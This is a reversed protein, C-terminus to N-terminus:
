LDIDYNEDEEIVTKSLDSKAISIVEFLGYHKNTSQEGVPNGEFKIKPFPENENEIYIDYQGPFKVGHEHQAKLTEAFVKSKRAYSNIITLKMSEGKVYVYRIHPQSKTGNRYFRYNVQHTDIAKFNPSIFVYRPFRGDKDDLEIGLSIVSLNAIIVRSENNPENFKDRIKTRSYISTKGYLVQPNYEKLLQQCILINEIFQLIIVVKNNPNKQLTSFAERIFIELEYFEILKLSTMTGFGKPGKKTSSNFALNTPEFGVAKSLEKLADNYKDKNEESIKYYGNKVDLEFKSSLPTMESSFEDQIVNIFLKYAVNKINKGTLSESELIQKTKLSNISNSLKKIQEFGLPTGNEELKLDGFFNTYLKDSDIVGTLVLFNIAQIEETFPSGTLLLARSDAKETTFLQKIRHLMSKVAAYTATKADKTKHFEDFVFLCRNRILGDLFKTPFYEVADVVEKGKENKTVIKERILTNSSNKGNKMGRLSDYSIIALDGSELYSIPLGYLDNVKEWTNAVNAPCIVVMNEYEGDQAVKCAVHTKGTGMPSKDVAFYSHALINQIKEFHQEQNDNILQVTKKRPTAYEEEEEEEELDEEEYEEEELDEEELYEDEELDEEDLYEDEELNDYDEDDEDPEGSLMVYDEYLSDYDKQLTENEEEFAINKNELDIIKTEIELFLDSQPKPLKFKKFKDILKFIDDFDKEM